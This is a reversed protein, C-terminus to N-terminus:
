SRPDAALDSASISGRAEACRQSRWQAIVTADVCFFDHPCETSVATLCHNAKACILWPLILDPRMQVGPSYDALQVYVPMAAVSWVLPGLYDHM